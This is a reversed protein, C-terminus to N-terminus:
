SLSVILGQSGTGIATIAATLYDTGATLSIGASLTGSTIKTSAAISIATDVNSGTKALQVTVPGSSSTTALAIVYKTLTVNNAPAYPDSTSVTLVGPYDFV